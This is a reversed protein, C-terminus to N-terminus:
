IGGEFYEDVHKKLGEQWSIPKEHTVEILKNASLVSFKPRKAKSPYEESTVPLIEKTVVTELHNASLNFIEKSFDYWSVPTGSSVHFLGAAGKDILKLTVEALWGAWTPSMIQDDVVKLVEKSQFLKIMTHVFNHGYVGHVSSTRIILAKEGLIELVSEEAKLKSKGYVGLPNTLDTELYPTGKEGDFVYDTSFQVFKSNCQSCLEAMKKPAESNVSFALEQEDEQKDVGTHAACNVVIDPQYEEFVKKLKEEDSVDIEISRISSFRKLIESGVQGSGGFLIIKKM